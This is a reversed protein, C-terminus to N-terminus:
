FRPDFLYIYVYGCSFKMENMERYRYRDNSVRAHKSRRIVPVSQLDISNAFDQRRSKSTSNNGPPWRLTPIEPTPVVESPFGSPAPPNMDVDDADDPPLLQVIPQIVPVQVGQVPNIPAQQIVSARKVEPQVDPQGEPQVKLSQAVQQVKSESDSVVMTSDQNQDQLSQCQSQDPLSQGQSQNPESSGPVPVDPGATTDLKVPSVDMNKSDGSEIPEITPVSEIVTQADDDTPDIAGSDSTSPLSVGSSPALSTESSTSPLSVESSTQESMSSCTSVDDSMASRTEDDEDDNKMKLLEDELKRTGIPDTEDPKDEPKDESKDEPKVESKMESDAPVSDTSQIAPVPLVPDNLDEGYLPSNKIEKVM